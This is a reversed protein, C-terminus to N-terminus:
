LCTHPRFFFLRAPYQWWMFVSESPLQFFRENPVHVLVEMAGIKEAGFCSTDPGREVISPNLSYSKFSLRM